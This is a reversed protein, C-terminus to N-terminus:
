VLITTCRVHRWSEVMVRKKGLCVGLIDRDKDEGSITHEAFLHRIRAISSWVQRQDFKGKGQQLMKM